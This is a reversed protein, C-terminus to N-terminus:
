EETEKDDDFMEKIRDLNEDQCLDEWLKQRVEKKINRQKEEKKLTALLSNHTTQTFYSFPNAKPHNVDFKHLQSLCRLIADGRMDELYTYGRWNPRTTYRYVINKIMEGLAPTIEGTDNFVRLETLMEEKNVYFEKRKRGMKLTRQKLLNLSM